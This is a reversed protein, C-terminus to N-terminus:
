IKLNRLLQNKTWPNLLPDHIKEMWGVLRQRMEALIPQCDPAQALNHLEGPDRQLHYLEDEATANWVYKWERNRLMRQSYLGFQNGHYMGLVDERNLRSNGSFLKVLSEGQFTAPIPTEAVECITAALDLSHVVFEDCITGPKIKGPWRLILPVRVVDDYMIFHKDIMGHNGCLDGHDSAYIVLTNEALGFQDLKELIRGIQSDLLSIEGLYRRVVPAWDDWTWDDLEWTRRQQSQIYPKNTLPDPFGAWPPVNPYM